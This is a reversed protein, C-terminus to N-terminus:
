KSNRGSFTSNGAGTLYSRRRIRLDVTPQLSDPRNYIYFHRVQKGSTLKTRLTSNEEGLQRSLEQSKRANAIFTQQQSLAITTLRRRATYRSVQKQSQEKPALIRCNM